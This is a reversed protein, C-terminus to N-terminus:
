LGIVGIPAMFVPSPLTLGLLEVSLDRRTAGAFMRPMLGWRSFATVNARQTAEDGAGGAVYSLVSPPLAQAARAEWGAFDMPYDPVVGSLGAFYIETQYSGFDAM